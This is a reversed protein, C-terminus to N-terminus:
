GEDERAAEAELQAAELDDISPLRYSLKEVAAKKVRGPRRDYRATTGPLAHGVLQQVTVLDVGEDLLDGIFTRRFDHPSLPPLGAQVRRKNIILGISGPTMHNAKVNGHKDIPCFLPGDRRTNRALWKGLFVGAQEHLNLEHEKNGKGIVTLTRSGPDYDERSAAAAEKRRGGTSHLFAILAADRAGAPSDDAFCVQLLAAAESVAINRGAPLRTGKSNKINRARHYDEAAMHGLLWAEELVRRLASLHKNFYSPAPIKGHEDPQLLHSRIKMTHEYRLAGWALGRGYPEELEVGLEDALYKAIRDLCGAMARRSEPNTLSDLYVDYPNSDRPLPAQDVALTVGVLEVETM